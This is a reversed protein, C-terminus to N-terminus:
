LEKRPDSPSVTIFPGDLPGCTVSGRELNFGCCPILRRALSGAKFYFCKRTHESLLNRCDMGIRLRNMMWLVSGQHRLDEQTNVIDTNTHVLCRPSRSCRQPAALTPAWRESDGPPCWSWYGRGDRGAPGSIWRWPNGQLHWKQKELKCLSSRHERRAVFPM